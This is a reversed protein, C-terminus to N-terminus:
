QTPATRSSLYTVLLLIKCDGFLIPRSKLDSYLIGTWFSALPWLCYISDLNFQLGLSAEISTTTTTTTTTHLYYLLIM